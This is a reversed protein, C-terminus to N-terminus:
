QTESQTNSHLKLTVSPQMKAPPNLRQVHVYPTISNHKSHFCLDTQKSQDQIDKHNIIVWGERGQESDVCVKLILTYVRDRGVCSLIFKTCKLKGEFIRERERERERVTVGKGKKKRERGCM